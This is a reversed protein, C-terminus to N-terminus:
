RAPSLSLYHATKFKPQLIGGHVVCPELEGEPMRESGVSFFAHRSDYIALTRFYSRVPPGQPGECVARHERVPLTFQVAGRLSSHECKARFALSGEIRNAFPASARCNVALAVSEYIIFRFPKWHWIANPDKM